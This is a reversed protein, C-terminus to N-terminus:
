TYRIIYMCVFLVFFEDEIKKLRNREYKRRERMLSKLSWAEKTTKIKGCIIGLRKDAGTSDGLCSVKCEVGRGCKM